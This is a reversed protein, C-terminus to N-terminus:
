SGDAASSHMERQWTYRLMASREGAELRGGGPCPLPTWADERVQKGRRLLADVEQEALMNVAAGHSDGGATGGAAARGATPVAPEVPLRATHSGRPRARFSGPPAAQCLRGAGAARRACNGDLQLGAPAARAPAARRQRLPARACAPASHPPLCPASRPARVPSRRRQGRQQAHSCVPVFPLHTSRPSMIRWSPLAAAPALPPGCGSSAARLRQGVPWELCPAAPRLWSDECGGTAIVSCPSLQWAYPKLFLRRPRPMFPTWSPLPTQRLTAAPRALGSPAQQTAGAPQAPCPSAQLTCPTAKSALAGSM